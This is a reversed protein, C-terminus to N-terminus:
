IIKGLKIPFEKESIEAEKRTEELYDIIETSFAGKIALDLTDFGSYVIKEM